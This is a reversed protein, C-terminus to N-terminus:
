LLGSILQPRRAEKSGPLILGDRDHFDLTEELSRLIGLPRISRQCMQKEPNQKKLEV